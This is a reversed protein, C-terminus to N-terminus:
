DNKFGRLMLYFFLYFCLLPIAILIFYILISRKNDKYIKIQESSSVVVSGDMRRLEYVVDRLDVFILNPKFSKLIFDEGKFDGYECNTIKILDCVLVYNYREDEASDAYALIDGGQKSTGTKFFGKVIVTKGSSENFGNDINYFFLVSLKSYTGPFILIIFVVIVVLRKFSFVHDSNLKNGKYFNFLVM